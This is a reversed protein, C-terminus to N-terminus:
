GSITLTEISASFGQTRAYSEQHYTLATAKKATAEKMSTRKTKLLKDTPLHARTHWVQVFTSAGYEAQVKLLLANARIMDQATPAHSVSFVSTETM